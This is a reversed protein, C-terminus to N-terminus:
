ECQVFIITLLSSSLNVVGAPLLDIPLPKNKVKNTASRSLYRSEESRCFGLQGGQESVEESLVIEGSDWSSPSAPNSGWCKLQVLELVSLNLVRYGSRAVHLRGQKRICSGGAM